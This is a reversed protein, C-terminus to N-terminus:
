SSKRRKRWFALGALGGFGLWMALTTPEPVVTIEGSMVYISRLVPLDQQTVPNLLTQPSIATDLWGSQAGGDGITTYRTNYGSLEDPSGARTSLTYPGIMVSDGIGEANTGTWVGVSGKPAQNDASEDYNIGTLLDGGNGNDELMDGASYAVLDGHTNFVPIDYANIWTQVANSPDNEASVLADWGNNGLGFSGTVLGSSARSDGFSDYYSHDADLADIVPSTVFVVRITDGASYGADNVGQWFDDVVDAHAAQAVAALVVCCSAFILMRRM